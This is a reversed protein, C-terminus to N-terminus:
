RMLGTIRTMQNFSKILAIKEATDGEKDDKKRKRHSSSKETEPVNDVTAAQEGDLTTLLSQRLDNEDFLKWAYLVDESFNGSFDM